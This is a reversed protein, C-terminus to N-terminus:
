DENKNGQLKARAPGPGGEEEDDDFMDGGQGMMDM